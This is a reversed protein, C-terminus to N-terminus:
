LVMYTALAFILVITSIVSGYGIVRRVFDIDPLSFFFKHCPAGCNLVEERGFVLKYDQFTFIKEVPCKM